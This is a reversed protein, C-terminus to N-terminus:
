SEEEGEEKLSLMDINETKGNLGSFHIHSYGEFSSMQPRRRLNAGEAAM